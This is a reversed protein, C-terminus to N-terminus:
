FSPNPVRKYIVLFLDFKSGNKVFIHAEKSLFDTTVNKVSNMVMLFNSTLISKEVSGDFNTVSRNQHGSLQDSNHHVM